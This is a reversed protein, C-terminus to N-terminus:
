RRLVAKLQVDGVVAALQDLCTLRLCVPPHHLPVVVDVADRGRGGLLLVFPDVVDRLSPQPSLNFPANSPQRYPASHLVHVTRKRKRGKIGDM